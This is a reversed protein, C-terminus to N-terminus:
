GAGGRGGGRGGAVPEVSVQDEETDLDGGREMGAEEREEAEQSVNPAM